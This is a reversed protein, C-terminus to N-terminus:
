PTPYALAPLWPVIAAMLEITTVPKPIYDSAGAQTCREREGAVMSGTVVLIPVLDFQDLARTARKAEYGDMGSMMIDMLIIDVDRVRALAALADAGNPAPAGEARGRELLAM